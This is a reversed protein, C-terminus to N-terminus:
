IVWIKDVFFQLFIQHTNIVLQRSSPQDAQTGCIYLIIGHIPFCKPQFLTITVWIFHLWLITCLYYVFEILLIALFFRCHPYFYSLVINLNFCGTYMLKHLFIPATYEFVISNILIRSSKVVLIEFIPNYM